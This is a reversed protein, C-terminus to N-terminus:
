QYKLCLKQTLIVYYFHILRFTHVQLTKEYLCIYLCLRYIICVHQFIFYFFIFFISMASYSRQKALSLLIMDSIQDNDDLHLRAIIVM